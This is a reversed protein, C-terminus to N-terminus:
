ERIRAVKGASFEIITTRYRDKWYTWANDELSTVKHVPPYGLAAVVGKKSMGLYVKGAKIGKRDTSDFADLDFPKDSTIRDIYDEVSMPLNRRYEFIIEKGDETTLAFGHRSSGVDVKSGAPLLFFPPRLEIWGSYSAKYLVQGRSVQQSVYINNRTYVQKGAASTITATAIMVAFLVILIRSSKLLTRMV